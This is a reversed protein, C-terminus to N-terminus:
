RNSTMGSDSNETLGSAPAGDWPQARPDLSLRLSGCAHQGPHRRM